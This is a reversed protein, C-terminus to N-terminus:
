NEKLLELLGDIEGRTTFWFAGTEKRKPIDFTDLAEAKYKLWKEIKDNKDKLRANEQQLNNFNDILQEFNNIFWRCNDFIAVLKDYNEQDFYHYDICNVTIPQKIIELAKKIEEENM